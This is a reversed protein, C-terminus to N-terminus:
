NKLNLYIESSIITNSKHLARDSVYVEFKFTDRPTIIELGLDKVKIDVLIDGTTAQSNDRSEIAPIRYNPPFDPPFLIQKYAGSDMYYIKMFFNYFFESTPDFPAVTDSKRYGLDGDGDTFSLTLKVITDIGNVDTFKLLDKFEIVPEIPYDKTKHCSSFVFAFFVIAIIIYSTNKMM